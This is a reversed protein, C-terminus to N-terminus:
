PKCTKATVFNGFFASIDKINENAVCGLSIKDLQLGCKGDPRCCGKYNFMNTLQAMPGTAATTGADEDAGLSNPCSTNINGNQNAEVCSGGTLLAAGFGMGTLQAGCKNDPTCCAKLCAM